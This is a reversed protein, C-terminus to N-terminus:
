DPLFVKYKGPETIEDADQHRVSAAAAAASVSVFDMGVISLRHRSRKKKRTKQTKTWKRTLTRQMVREEIRKMTLNPDSLSRYLMSPARPSPSSSLSKHTGQEAAIAADNSRHRKYPEFDLVDNDATHVRTEGGGGGRKHRHRRTLETSSRLDFDLKEVSPFPKMRGSKKGGSIEKHLETNISFAERLQDKGEVSHQQQQRKSNKSTSKRHKLKSKTRVKPKLNTDDLCPDSSAKHLVNPDLSPTTPRRGGSSQYAAAVSGSRKSKKRPLTHSLKPSELIGSVLGSDSADSDAPLMPGGPVNPSMVPSMGGSGKGRTFIKTLINRSRRRVPRGQGHFAKHKTEDDEEEDDDFLCSGGEVATPTAATAGGAVTDVEQICTDSTSKPFSRIGLSPIHPADSVSKCIRQKPQPLTVELLGQLSDSHEQLRRQQQEQEDQRGGCKHEMEQEQIVEVEQIHQQHHLHHHLPEVDAAVVIFVADDGDDGDDADDNYGSECSPRRHRHRHRHRPDQPCHQSVHAPVKAAAPYLLEDHQFLLCFINM